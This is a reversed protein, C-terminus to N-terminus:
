ASAQSGLSQNVLCQLTVGRAADREAQEIQTLRERVVSRATDPCTALDQGQGTRMAELVDGATIKDLPRAPLYGTESGTMEAVLNAQVLVILVQGALRLPVRLAEAMELASPPKNGTQFREGIYTMIRLALFERGRQNINQAQREQAYARRNQFAYAVQAGLLM